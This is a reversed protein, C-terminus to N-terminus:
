RSTDEVLRFPSPGTARVRGRTKDSAWEDTIDSSSPIINRNCAERLESKTALRFTRGTIESVTSIFQDIEARSGLRCTKGDPGDTANIGMVYRYLQCDVPYPMIKFGLDPIEEMGGVAIALPTVEVLIMNNPQRENIKRVIDGINLGGDTQRAIQLPVMGPVVIGGGMGRRTARSLNKDEKRIRMGFVGEIKVMKIM